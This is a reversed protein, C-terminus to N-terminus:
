GGEIGGNARHGVTATHLLDVVALATEAGVETLVLRLLLGAEVLDADGALGGLIQDFLAAVGAVRGQVQDDGGDAAALAERGRRDRPAGRTRSM